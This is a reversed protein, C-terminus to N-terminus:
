KIEHGTGCSCQRTWLDRPVKNLKTILRLDERKLTWCRSCYNRELHLMGAVREDMWRGRRRMFLLYLVDGVFIGGV